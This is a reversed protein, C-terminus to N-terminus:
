NQDHHKVVVNYTVDDGEYFMLIEEYFLKKQKM